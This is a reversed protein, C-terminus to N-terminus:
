EFRKWVRGGVKGEKENVQVGEERLLVVKEGFHEGEKGWSGGFGGIGGKTAVIRHCPVTPAFPNNRLANGVARPSSHLFNSLALYTSVHGKPIQCLALLVRKRFPTLDPSQIILSKLHADIPAAPPPPPPPSPASSQPPTAPPVGLATRIDMQNAAKSASNSKSKTVTKSAKKAPPTTFATSTTAAADDDDEEGNGDRKRKKSMKGRVELSREDLNVLNVKGEAIAEGLTICQRLQEPLMHKIAPSALHATWPAPVPEESKPNSALVLSSSSPDYIESRSIVADLIIRAFCHDLQVPWRPQSPAKSRALSPLTHKYLTTWQAQLSTTM